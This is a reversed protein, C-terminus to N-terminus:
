WLSTQGHRDDMIEVLDKRHASKLLKMGLWRHTLLQVKALQELQKHYSGEVM